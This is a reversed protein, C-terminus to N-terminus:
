HSIWKCPEYIDNRKIILSMDELYLKYLKNPLILMNIKHHFTNTDEM